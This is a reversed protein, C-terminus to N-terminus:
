GRDRIRVQEIYLFRRPCPFTAKWTCCLRGEDPEFLVTELVPVRYSDHGDLIVRIELDRRPLRFSLEGEPHLNVLRVPEGGLLPKPAILDPHASQFFRHDFDAPLFPFREKQWREDYTGALARRPAWSPAIFGFGTPAPRDSPSSILQRPDELNPLSLETFRAGKNEIAFGTGAPNRPEYGHQTPDKATMDWGGFAREYVLPLRVFPKPRSPRKLGLTSEWARDGFVRVVKSIAGVQLVVDLAEVARAPACAHGNLAIDTTEKAPFAESAVRLSSRESKADRYVDAM